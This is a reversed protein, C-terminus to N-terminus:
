FRGFNIMPGFMFMSTSAARGLQAFFSERQQPEPPAIMEDLEHQIQVELWVQRLLPRGAELARIQLDIDDQQACSLEPLPAPETM